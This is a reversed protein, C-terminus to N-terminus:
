RCLTPNKNRGNRMAKIREAIVSSKAEAEAIERVLLGARADLWLDIARRDRRGLLTDLRPFGNKELMTKIASFRPAGIGLYHATDEESLLRPEAIDKFKNRPAM